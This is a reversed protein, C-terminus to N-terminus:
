HGARSGEGAVASRAGAGAEAVRQLFFDELTDRLPNLSV